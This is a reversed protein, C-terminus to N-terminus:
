MIPEEQNSHIYQLGSQSAHPLLGVSYVELPKMIIKEKKDGREKIEAFMEWSGLNLMAYLIVALYKVLIVENFKGM